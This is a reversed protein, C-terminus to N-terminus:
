RRAGQRFRAFHMRSGSEFLYRPVISEVTSPTIDLEGLGDKSCVSDVSMSLYNDYTMPKGPALSLLHAQVRSLWDPLGPTWVRAGLLERVYRVLELFTYARPGCLEYHRGHSAPDELTKVMAEVVDGVYVPAFRAAPCAVPFFGPTAGLIGALLSFFGDGPGFIISPRFSTVAVSPKGTTHAINEAEGKSRLYQSAGAAANANLASMHLLRNVGAERCAQVVLRALGVHADRFGAGKRGSDHLVGVLNIVADMGEFQKTLAKLDHINAEVVEAHPLVLLDRNRERRRTIVRTRYGASELRATLHRGVFGSGGLICVNKIKM